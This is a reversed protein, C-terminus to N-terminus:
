SKEAGDRERLSAAATMGGEGQRGDVSERENRKRGVDEARLSMDYLRDGNHPLSGM